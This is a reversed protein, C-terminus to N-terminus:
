DGFGCAFGIASVPQALHRSSALMRHARALRQELVFHSFTTGSGDFLMSVYRPTIGHRLAVAGISLTEDGLNALVDDKIARLRAARVGREAALETADRNAGLALAVLDYVHSVVARRTEANAGEAEEIASLYAPLLRQALSSRIPRLVC